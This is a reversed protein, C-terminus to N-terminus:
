PAARQAFPPVAGACTTARGRRAHTSLLVVLLPLVIVLSCADAAVVRAGVSTGYLRPVATAAAGADVAVVDAPLSLPYSTADACGPV